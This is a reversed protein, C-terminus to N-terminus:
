YESLLSWFKTYYNIQFKNDNPYQRLDKLVRKCEIILEDISYVELKAEIEKRVTKIHIM